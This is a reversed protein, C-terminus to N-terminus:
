LICILMKELIIKYFKKGIRRIDYNHLVLRKSSGDQTLIDNRSLIILNPFANVVRNKKYSNEDYEYMGNFSGHKVIDKAFFKIGYSASSLQTYSGKGFIQRKDSVWDGIFKSAMLDEEGFFIAPSKQHVQLCKLVFDQFNANSHYKYYSNSAFINLDGIIMLASVNYNGFLNDSALSSVIITAINKIASKLGIELLMRQSIKLSCSCNKSISISEYM